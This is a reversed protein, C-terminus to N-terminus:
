CRRPRGHFARRDAAPVSGRPLAARHHRGAVAKRWLKLHVRVLLPPCARCCCPGRRTRPRTAPATAAASRVAELAARRERDAGRRPRTLQFACLALCAIGAVLFIIM